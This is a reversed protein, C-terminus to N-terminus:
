TYQNISRTVRRTAPRPELLMRLWKQRIYGELSVCGRGIFGQARHFQWFPPPPQCFSPGETTNFPEGSSFATPPLLCCCSGPEKFVLYFTCVAARRTDAPPATDLAPPLMTRKRLPPSGDLKVFQVVCSGILLASANILQERASGRLRPAFPSSKLMLTQDQSLILAPPTGLVHLDHAFAGALPHTSRCVPSYCTPSRGELPPYCDSLIALVAHCGAKSCASILAPSRL